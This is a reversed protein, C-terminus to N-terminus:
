IQQALLEVKGTREKDFTLKFIPAGAVEIYPADFSVPIINWTGHKVLITHTIAQISPVKIGLPYWELEEPGSIVFRIGTWTFGPLCKPLVIEIDMKKVFFEHYVESHALDQVCDQECKQNWPWHNFFSPDMRLMRTLNLGIVDEKLKRLAM